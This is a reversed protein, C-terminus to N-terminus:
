RRVPPLIVSFVCGTGPLNRGRVCAGSREAAQAAITLGLGVGSRDSHRQVFSAFLEEPEVSLGGCEDEVQIVVRDADLGARVCVRGDQRTFKLANQVLNGVVSLFSSRHVCVVMDDPIDVVLEVRKGPPPTLDLAAFLECLLAPELVLDPRSEERVGDLTDTILARMRELSRQLIATTRSRTGALGTRLSESAFTATMLANRLEHALTGLREASARASQAATRDWYQDLAHAVGHDIAANMVQVENGPISLGQTGALGSVVECVLGFSFAVMAPPIKMGHLRLGHLDGIRAIAAIAHEDSSRGPELVHQVERVFEPLLAMCDVAHCDTREQLTLRRSLEGLIAQRHTDIFDSLM